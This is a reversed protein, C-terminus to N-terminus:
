KGGYCVIASHLMAFRKSRLSEKRLFELDMELTTSGSEVSHQTNSGNSM